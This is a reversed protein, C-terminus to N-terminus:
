EDRSHKHRYNSDSPTAVGDRCYSCVCVSVHHTAVGDRSLKVESM